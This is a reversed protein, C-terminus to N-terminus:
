GEKDAIRLGHQELLFDLKGPDLINDETVRRVQDIWATIARCAAWRRENLEETM